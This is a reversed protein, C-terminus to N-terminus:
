LHERLGAEIRRTYLKVLGAPLRELAEKGQPGLPVLRRVTYSQDLLAACSFCAGEGAMSFVYILGGDGGAQYWYGALPSRLPAALPKAGLEAGSEALARNLAQLMAASRAQRTLGWALGGALLIGAIWALFVGADKLAPSLRPASDHPASNPASVHAQQHETKQRM